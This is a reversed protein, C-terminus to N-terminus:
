DPLDIIRRAPKMFDPESRNVEVPKDVIARISLGRKVASTRFELLADSYGGYQKVEKIHRCDRRPVHRTWGICGCAWAGNEDVGVTYTTGSTSSPVYWKKIWTM